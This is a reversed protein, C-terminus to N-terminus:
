GSPPPTTLHVEGSHVTTEHRTGSLRVRLGGDAAFGVVEGEADGAKGCYRVQQGLLSSVAAHAEIDPGGRREFREVAADLAGVLRTVLADRDHQRDTEIRLSTAIEALELPLQTAELNVNVGLGVLVAPGDDLVLETLIGALKRGGVLVDNPWKAQADVGLERIVGCVATGVDLALGSLREVPLQPRYLGTLYVNVGAPSFWRRGSRGRGARQADAVVVTGSPAGDAALRRADENTSDTVEVSHLRSSM